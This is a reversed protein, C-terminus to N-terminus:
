VRPKLNVSTSSAQATGGFIPGVSQGMMRVPPSTNAIGGGFFGQISKRGGFIGILGGREKSSTIDGIM